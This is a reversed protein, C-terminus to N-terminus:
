QNESRLVDFITGYEKYPTTITVGEKPILVKKNRRWYIDTLWYWKGKIKRPFWAYSKQWPQPFRFFNDMAEAMRKVSEVAANFEEVSKDM